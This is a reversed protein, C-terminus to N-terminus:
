CLSWFTWKQPWKSVTSVMPRTLFTQSTEKIALKHYKQM